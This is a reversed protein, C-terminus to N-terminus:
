FRILLGGWSLGGGFGMTLVLDGPKITNNRLNEDMVLAVSAASTNGCRDLNLLFREKPFGFKKSIFDIMRVNAQHPIIYTLDSPQVGGKECLKTIIEPIVETAFVYVQKGAMQFYIEGAAITVPSVPKRSGSSPVQILPWGKGDSRMYTHQIGTQTDGGSQLIVAGAGDGFLPSTTKDNFNLIKSYTDAGIAMVTRYKGCKIFNDAIELAYIFSSCVSNVDFAFAHKAGINEQVMCATAPLIMDPTSTGVVICDVGSADIGAAQLANNAAITALDSTSQDAHAFRRERIGTRSFIWEDANEVLYDFHSNPIVREPLCAGSGIIKSVIM